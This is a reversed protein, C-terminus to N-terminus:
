GTVEMIDLLEQSQECYIEYYRQRLALLEQHTGREVLVGNELLIIEDANKVASIRHAIIVKSVGRLAELNQQIRYETELDLNSTADDLILVKASKLLARALAIRQKQGGSLGIGREGIITGYEEPLQRIFDAIAAQEAARYVAESETDESGFRINEDITDSFLFTEQMVVAVQQRLAKLPWDRVDIGDILIRGSSCDYYRTILNILSSKGSGTMGMIAVTTGPPIRLNIDKLVPTDHFNFSVNEFRIEGNIREPLVPSESEKVAPKEAFLLEIKQLSARCQALMNTLWGLMRMPWVLMMIYNSFAVLTGVSIESRIVLLGGITTVLVVSLNTLFEIRPHHKSWVRAQEIKLRYNEENRALFKEIEYKERCFAKVLRIGVLNEQATTNLIVGQDSLKEFVTGIESELRFAIWAIVPMLLLAVLALKWHLNFLLISATLFYISQEIFLMLGYAFTHWINDVDDKIRSMLEGTNVGDFFSFSLSQLHDFLDLRLQAVLAQSGYDFLYEKLYGLLARSLTIFALWGLLNQFLETKGAIIVEDIISRLLRPNFMDLGTSILLAIIGFLYYWKNRNLYPWLRQM